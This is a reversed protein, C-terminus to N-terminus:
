QDGRWLKTAARILDFQAQGARERIAATAWTSAYLAELRQYAAKVEAFNRLDDAPWAEAQSFTNPEAKREPAPKVLRPFPRPQTHTIPTM